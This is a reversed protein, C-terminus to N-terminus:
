SYPTPGQMYSPSAPQWWLRALWYIAEGQGGSRIDSVPGGSLWNEAWVPKSESCKPILSPIPHGENLETRERRGFVMPSWLGVFSYDRIGVLGNLATFDAQFAWPAPGRATNVHSSDDKRIWDVVRELFQFNVHILEWSCSAHENWTEEETRAGAGCPHAWRMGLLALSPHRPIINSTLYQAAAAFDLPQRLTLDNPALQTKEWKLPPDSFILCVSQGSLWM